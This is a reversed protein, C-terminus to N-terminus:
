RGPPATPRLRPGDAISSGEPPVILVPHNAYEAVHHSTSGLLLEPFGGAGRSGVVILDARERKAADLLVPVPPGDLLLRRYAIGSSELPACWETEFTRRLEALHSHSPVPPGEGLHTLLGVAHVAVLEAQFQQALLVAWGLARRANESGDVAALIREIRVTM